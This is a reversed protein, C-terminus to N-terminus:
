QVLNQEYCVDRHRRAVPDRNSLKSPFLMGVGLAGGRELERSIVEQLEPAGDRVTLRTVRGREVSM